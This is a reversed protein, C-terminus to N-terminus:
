LKAIEKLFENAEVIGSGFAQHYLEEAPIDEIRSLAYTLDAPTLFKEFKETEEGASKKQIEERIEKSLSKRIKEIDINPRYATKCLIEKVQKTSIDKGIKYGKEKLLSTGLALVGAVHPAAFSTGSNLSYAKKYQDIKQFTIASIIKETWQPVDLSFIDEGPACVDVTRDINSFLSHSKKTNVSGVSIVSEWAAPFVPGVCTNGAAAVLLKGEEYALADCIRKLEPDEDIVLSLNIIDCDFVPHIAFGLARIVPRLELTDPKSTRVVKFIYQRAKPAISNIVGAIATGHSANDALLYKKYSDQPDNPDISKCVLLNRGHKHTDKELCSELDPHSTCCGSNIVAVKANQGTSCEQASYANITLIQPLKKKKKLSLYKTLEQRSM